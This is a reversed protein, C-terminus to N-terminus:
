IRGIETEIISRISDEIEQDVADSLEFKRTRFSSRVVQTGDGDLFRCVYGDVHKQRVAIKGIYACAEDYAKDTRAQLVRDYTVQMTTETNTM